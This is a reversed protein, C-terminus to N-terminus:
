RSAITCYGPFGYLSSLLKVLPPTKRCRSSRTLISHLACAANQSCHHRLLPLAFPLSTRVLHGVICPPHRKVASTVTAISEDGGAVAEGADASVAIKTKSMRGENPLEKLIGEININVM